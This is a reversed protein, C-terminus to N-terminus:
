LERVNKVRESATVPNGSKNSKRKHKKEIKHKCRPYHLRYLSKSHALHDPTQVWGPQGRPGGLERSYWTEKRQLYLPQHPASVVWGRRVGDLMSLQVEAMGRYRGPM